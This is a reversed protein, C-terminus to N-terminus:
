LKERNRENEETEDEIEDEIEREREVTNNVSFCWDGGVMTKILSGIERIICNYDDHVISDTGVHCPDVAMYNIEKRGKKLEKLATRLADLAINRRIVNSQLIDVKMEEIFESM